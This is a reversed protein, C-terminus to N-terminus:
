APTIDLVLVTALDDVLDEPVEIRLEGHPDANILSDIVACRTTFALDRGTSLEAVREIRRIPV